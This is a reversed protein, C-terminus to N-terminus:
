VLAPSFSASQKKRKRSRLRTLIMANVHCRAVHNFRLSCEPSKRWDYFTAGAPKM